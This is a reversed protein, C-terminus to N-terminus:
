PIYNAIMTFEHCFARFGVQNGFVTTITDDVDGSNPFLSERLSGWLKVGVMATAAEEKVAEQRESLLQAGDLLLTAAITQFPM